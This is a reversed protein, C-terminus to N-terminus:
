FNDNVLNIIDQAKTAEEPTCDTPWSYENHCFHCEMRDWYILWQQSGCSCTAVEEM